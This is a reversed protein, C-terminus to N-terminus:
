DLAAALAELYEDLREVLADARREGLAGVGDVAAADLPERELADVALGDDAGFPLAPQDLEAEPRPGPAQGEGGLPAFGWGEVGLVPMPSQRFLRASRPNLSM